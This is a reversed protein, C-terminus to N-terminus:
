HGIASQYEKDTVANMWTVLSKDAENTLAVHTFESDPAAGHWHEVHAPINVVDGVTLARMPQGREQYCGRGAIVLLIQGDPHTHWFTRARPSFVVNGVAYKNVGAAATLPRVTVPGTFNDPSAPNGPPFIATENQTKM